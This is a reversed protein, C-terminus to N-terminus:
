SVPPALSVRHQPSNRLPKGGSRDDGGGGAITRLRAMSGQAALSVVAHHDTRQFEQRLSQVSVAAAWPGDRTEAGPTRCHPCQRDVGIALEIAAAAGRRAVPWIAMADARQADTLDDVHSVWGLFTKRDM